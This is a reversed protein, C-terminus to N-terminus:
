TSEVQCLVATLHSQMTLRLNFKFIVSPTVYIVFIRAFYPHNKGFARIYPCVRIFVPSKEVSCQVISGTMSIEFRM